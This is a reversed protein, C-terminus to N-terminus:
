LLKQNKKTYGIREQYEPVHESDYQGQNTVVRKHLMWLYDKIADPNKIHKLIVPEMLGVVQVEVDGFNLISSVAGTTKYSVNLIREIPTDIVVRKFFGSHSHLILRKNTIIYKTEYWIILKKAFYGLGALFVLAILASFQNALEYKYLFLFLFIAPLVGFMFSPVLFILHEHYINRLHEQEDLNLRM